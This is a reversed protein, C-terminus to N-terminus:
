RRGGTARRALSLARRVARVAYDAKTTVTERALERGDFSHVVVAYSISGGLVQATFQVTRIM